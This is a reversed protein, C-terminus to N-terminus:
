LSNKKHNKKIFDMMESNLENQTIQRGEEIWEQLELRKFYLRKNKKYHPIAKKSVLQYLTQKALKLFTAAEDITFFEPNERTSGSMKLKIFARFMAKQLDEDSAVLFVKKKNDTFM